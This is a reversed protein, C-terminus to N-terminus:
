IQSHLIESVLYLMSKSFMVNAEKRKEGGCIGIFLVHESFSNSSIM